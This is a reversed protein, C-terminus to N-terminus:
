EALTAGLLATAAAGWLINSTSIPSAATEAPKSFTQESVPKGESPVRLGGGSTSATTKEAV